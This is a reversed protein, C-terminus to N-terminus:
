SNKKKVEDENEGMFSFKARVIQDPSEQSDRAAMEEEEEDECELASEKEDGDNDAGRGLCLKLGM